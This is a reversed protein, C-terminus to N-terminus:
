YLSRNFIERVSGLTECPRKKEKGWANIKDKERLPIKTGEQKSFCGISPSLLLGYM